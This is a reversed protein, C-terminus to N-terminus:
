KENIGVQKIWKIVKKAAFGSFRYERGQKNYLCVFTIFLAKKIAYGTFESIPLDLFVIGTMSEYFCVRQNTVYLTGNTPGNKIKKRWYPDMDPAIDKKKYKYAMTANGIMQENNQLQFKTMIDRRGWLITDYKKIAIVWFIKM